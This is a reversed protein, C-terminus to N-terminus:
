TAGGYYEGYRYGYGARKFELDHAQFGKLDNEEVDLTVRLQDNLRYVTALDVDGGNVSDDPSPDQLTRGNDLSFKITASKNFSGSALLLTGNHYRAFPVNGTFVEEWTQGDDESLLVGRSGYFIFGTDTVLAHDFQGTGSNGYENDITEVAEFNVGDTSRWIEFDDTGTEGGGNTFVLAVIATQSATLVRVHQAVRTFGDRLATNVPSWTALNGSRLIDPTSGAPCGIYHYGQFRCYTPYYNDINLPYRINTIGGFNSSAGTRFFMRMYNLERLIGFDQEVPSSWTVLDNSTRIYYRIFFNYAGSTADEVIGYDTSNIGLVRDGYSLLLRLQEKNPTRITDSVTAFRDGGVKGVVFARGPLFPAVCLIVWYGNVEVVQRPVVNSFHNGHYNGLDDPGWYGGYLEQWTEGGDSSVMIMLGGSAAVSPRGVLIVNSGTRAMDIGVWETPSEFVRYWSAGNNTSKYIGSDSTGGNSIAFLDAGTVVPKHTPESGVLGMINYWTGGLNDSFEEGQESFVIVRSGVWFVSFIRGNITLIPSWSVGGDTSLMVEDFTLDSGDVATLEGNPGEGIMTYYSNQPLAIEVWGSEEQGYPCTLIKRANTAVAVWGTQGHVADTITYGVDDILNIDTGTMFPAHDARNVSVVNEKTVLVAQTDDTFLAEFEEPESFPFDVRTFTGDPQRVNFGVTAQLNLSWFNTSAFMESFEAPLGIVEDNLEIQAGSAPFFAGRSGPEGSLTEFDFTGELTILNGDASSYHKYISVNDSQDPRVLFFGTSSTGVPVYPKGQDNGAVTRRFTEGASSVAKGLLSAENMLTFSDTQGIFQGIVQNGDEDFVGVEYDRGEGTGVTGDKFTPIEALQQTRDRHAWTMALPGLGGNFVERFYEGFFKVNGAPYPRAQRNQLTYTELPAQSVQLQGTSTKTLLRYDATEGDVRVTEDLVNLSSRYVWIPEGTSHPKPVTDIAGRNVTITGLSADFTVLEVLESGLWALGGQALVMPDIENLEVHLEEDLLGADQTLTIQPTFDGQGVEEETVNDYVILSSSDSNPTLASVAMFGVDEPWELRDAETTATYLEYYSLEYPKQEQVPEADKSPDVWGIPQPTVYAGQPLAFVDEVAEIKIEANGPTGLDMSGIRVALGNLGLRPWNLRVVDGPYQGLISRNCVLTVKAVPKSLTNLDRLALRMALEPSRVGPYEKKQSNIKGANAYNALDQVAVTDTEGDEPRTFAVVVENITDSMTKRQFNDLVCNDYNLEFLSNVDYDGRVLSLRFEGSERDEVLTGNIHELVLEIFEQVRTQTTWKLSLGLGEDYLTDAVQYFSDGVDQAPYGLGWEKNVLCEYIIHAPNVDEGIQAKEPYWEKWVRRILFKPNKFYPNMASWLFSSKALRWLSNVNLLTNFITKNLLTKLDVGSTTDANSKKAEDWPPNFDGIGDFGKFYATTVGRYSPIATADTARIVANRLSQNVPQGDDGPMFDVVGVVGGERESGGFLFPENVLASGAGSIDGRWAVRDGIRIEMLEGAGGHCLTFHINMYYHYGVTVKKSSGGM